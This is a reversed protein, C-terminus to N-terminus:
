KRYGNFGISQVWRVVGMHFRRHTEDIATKMNDKEKQSLQRWENDLSRYPYSNNEERYKQLEMSEILSLLEEETVVYQKAM